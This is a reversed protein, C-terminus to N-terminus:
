EDANTNVSYMKYLYLTGDKSTDISFWYYVKENKGGIKALIQEFFHRVYKAAM